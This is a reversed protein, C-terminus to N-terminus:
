IKKSYIIRISNLIAIVAVGVDAVLGILMGLNSYNGLLNFSVIIMSLIKIGLSLIINQIIIKRTYKALRHAKKVKSIESGIIVIDAAEKTADSAIDGVAIGVDALRLVPADNLGDGVYILTDKKNKNNLQDEVIKLKDQPLLESHIHDIGIKKGIHNAISSVDGTLMYTICKKNKLYKITDITNLKIEDSVVINGVYIKDYVLYIISGISNNEEFEINNEILLKKNGIMVEHEDYKATLGYGPLEKIDKVISEDIEQNYSEKISVAIPHNSFSEVHAAIKLLEEKTINKPNIETVVFKGKTLTGTKDFYVHKTSALAELYNAGKILIGEKSGRGIGSFYALPISIVLACPCSIVLFVFANNLSNNIEYQLLFYQILFISLSLIMVVPTYVRAFKTIFEDIKAKKNSAEDILKNVLTSTSNEETKLVKVKIVQTLNITGSLVEDNEEVFKSISEGTLSSTDLDTKGEIIVGDLPIKEGVKVIVIEGVTVDKTNKVSGDELTVTDVKLNMLKKVEKTSNDIAKNKLTEGIIFLVIVMISEIGEKIFLAGTSAILMLLNENFIDGHIIRNFTNKIIEFGLLIYSALYIYLSYDKSYGKDLIIATIFSLIGLINRLINFWGIKKKKNVEDKKYVYASSETQKFCDNLIKLIDVNEKYTVTVTKNIFNLKASFIEKRKNLAKEIKLACNPCDVGDFLFEDYLEKENNEQHKPCRSIYVVANVIENLEEISVDNLSELYLTNDVSNFEIIKFYNLMRLNELLLSRCEKCTLEKLEICNYRKNM